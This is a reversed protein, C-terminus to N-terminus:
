PEPPVVPPIVDPHIVPTQDTVATFVDNRFSDMPFAPGPDWKRKPAIDDHGLILNIGYTKVLLVALDQCAQLQEPTYTHWGYPKTGFKHTAVMVEDDPYIRKFAAKWGLRTKQLMGANDLEIGISYRNLQKRGQWTSVGAHWAIINFPVIQAIQGDRGIVVHASVQSTPNTLWSVAGDLSQGETFHIILTDPKFLGGINPSAKYLCPVGDDNCLRDNVIKM